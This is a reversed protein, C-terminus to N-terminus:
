GYAGGTYLLDFVRAITGILTTSGVVMTTVLLVALIWRSSSAQGSGPNYKADFKEDAMVGIVLAEIFGVIYSITIPLLKFFGDAEPALGVVMGAIPVSCLHMLGLKDLPGRLYFRHVGFGGLILALFTALTKSKHPKAM